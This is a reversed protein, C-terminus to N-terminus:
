KVFRAGPADEVEEIRADSEDEIEEIRVDSDSDSESLPPEMIITKVFLNPDDSLSPPYNIKVEERRSSRYWSYSFCVVAGILTLAAAVFIQWRYSVVESLKSALVFISSSTRNAVGDDEGEICYDINSINAPLSQMRDNSSFTNWDTCEEIWEIYEDIENQQEELSSLRNRYDNVTEQHTLGLYKSIPSFVTQKETEQPSNNAEIMNQYLEFMLKYNKINSSLARSEAKLISKLESGDSFGEEFDQMLSRIKLTIEHHERDKERVADCINHSSSNKSTYQFGRFCNILEIVFFLTPNTMDHPVLFNSHAQTLGNM